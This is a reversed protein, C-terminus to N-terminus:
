GAERILGPESVSEADMGAKWRKVIDEIPDDETGGQMEKVLKREEAILVALAKGKEFEDADALWTRDKGHVNLKVDGIIRLIKFRVIRLAAALSVDVTVADFAARQDEPLRERMLTEYAGHRLANANGGPAGATAGHMRCVEAGRVPPNKCRKGSRKSNAKCRAM